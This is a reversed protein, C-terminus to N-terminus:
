RLALLDPLVEDRDNWYQSNKTIEISRMPLKSMSPDSLVENCDSWPQSADSIKISRMSGKSVSSSPLV